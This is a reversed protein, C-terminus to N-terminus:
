RSERVFALVADIDHFTHGPPSPPRAIMIVPLRLDRAAVLKAAAADGGSNKTVVVDIRGARLLARESEVSFPPRAALTLLGLTALGLMWRSLPGFTQASRM